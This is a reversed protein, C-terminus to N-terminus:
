DLRRCRLFLHEEPQVDSSAPAYACSSEDVVEFRAAEVLERLEERLYGSVRIHGGLFPIRFYDVDAEVMSLAFLGGPVLLRHITRLALAIEARPLMLLAFFATVADFRGLDGSGGGGLDAIDMRHFRAAPVHERALTIMGDSLDIGVVEMGADTLQRATPLGTGCGVDLVRAGAPLSEILWQAAAIQGEKHPFAEDYRDGIMDFAEAQGTRDLRLSGYQLDDTSNSM